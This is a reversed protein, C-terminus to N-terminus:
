IEHNIRSLGDALINAKGAIHFIQLSYEQLFLSWRTLRQNKNKFRHLYKLPNHDSFVQVPFVGASIYIEFHQVALVLALTEKEITSYNRQHKNLKKSYYAVPHDIGDDSEQFLVGGIGVDSADVTLKFGKEFDPVVLVPPNKLLKKLTEFAVQCQPTWKFKVEKSLLTTLPLAVDAFNPCFKRYYGVTGLYKLVDKRCKPVPFKDIAEIKAQRPLVKGQGVSFGLYTIHAHGIESKTLNVTLNAEALREFLKRIQMLHEEWTDSGIAVDDIFVACNKLGRIVSNMMRTFSSPANKLGFAMVKCQYFHEPTVFATIEKSKETLPVQWYGKLLDFKSIFKAKGMKDICDEVRPIPHSDSKTLNNIFRFDICLRYSKDPKPILLVPSSWPSESPEILDNKLMYDIEAQLAAMKAPNLRYPHQKVPTVGELLIIDHEAVKARGPVDAFLQKFEDILQIVEQSQAVTLHKLKSDLNGLVDSNLLPQPSMKEQEVTIDVDSEEDHSQEVLSQNVSTVACVKAEREFYPKIMNVHCIRKTKRRDPTHVLYDVSNLKQLVEYPGSFKAQLPNGPMPILLLVKDGPVFVQVRAKKDFWTKMKQQAKLLHDKAFQCAENLRTKFVSVYKLMHLDGITEGLLQEKFLHLPGRVEHGFILEFPSFGLSENPVERIAFLLFDIGKDWDKEHDYCYGRLMTKFTQHFRELAGQSQPHYASSTKHSVGLTHLVEQFIGSLFNSGQDSRIVRPLGMRTFFKLLAAVVSQANIKRLPIAEPFRTAEDMLTLLYSYGTQTKPLPGVCDIIISEFPNGFVPIPILPAPKINQNPKGVVQCTHCSRVYEAVDKHLSPWFFHKLIRDKTKRVGMHGSMPLDHALKLVENRYKEPLVVQHVEHWSQNAPVNSPRWKRMLIGNKLYYSVPLNEVEIESLAQNFANQLSSDGTQCEKLASENFRLDESKDANQNTIKTFFTDALSVGEEPIEGPIQMSSEDGCSQLLKQSRTMVCAPFIGPYETELNETETVARPQLSLVPVTKVQNGAIDNGLLFTVNKMPLQSVVGVRIVGTYYSSELWIDHLPILIDQCDIGKVWIHGSPQNPFEGLVSEVILSQMSGTDRLMTVSIQSGEQRLSVKGESKFGDYGDKEGSELVPEIGELDIPPTIPQLAGVPKVGTDVRANRLEPHLQFCKDKRHGPKKCHECFVKQRAGSHAKYSQEANQKSGAPDPKSSQDTPKQGSSPRAAQFHTKHTLYYEDALIAANELTTVKHEELYSRIEKSVSNKFEEVLILEKLKVFDSGVKQSALWRECLTKKERAFEVHTVQYPKQFRRFKQRYAEPVLEYTKLIEGKVVDYDAIQNVSLASYADLARGSLSTQLLIPWKDRPWALSTATKEFALFFKDVDKEAFKPVLRVQQAVNFSDSRAAVKLEIEKLKLIHEKEAARERAAKNEEDKIADDGFFGLNLLQTCVQSVLAPKLLTEVPIVDTLELHECLTVIENKKLKSVASRTLTRSLFDEPKFDAM